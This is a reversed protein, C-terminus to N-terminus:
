RVKGLISDAIARSLSGLEGDKPAYIRQELAGVRQPTVNAPLGDAVQRSVEKGLRHAGDRGLGPIRLHLHDIRVTEDSM